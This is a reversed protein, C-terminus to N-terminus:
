TMRNAAVPSSAVACPVRANHLARLLELAGPKTDFPRHGFRQRIQLLRFSHRHDDDDFPSVDFIFSDQSGLRNLMQYLNAAEVEFVANGGAAAKLAGSLTVQIM